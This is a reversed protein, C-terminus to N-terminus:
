LCPETIVAPINERIHEYIMSSISSIEDTAPLTMFIKEIYKKDQLIEFSKPFNLDYVWSVQLLKFDNLSHLLDKRRVISKNRLDELVGATITPVDNVGLIVPDNETFNKKTFYETSFNYIDLKDADRIMRAFMLERGTCDEPIAVINHKDIAYIIIDATKRCLDDLVGEDKIIKVALEAHNISKSDLFTGYQTFQEFRGLDHFLAITEAINVDTWSLGQSVAIEKINSCVRFTHKEKLDLCKQKEPDPSSFSRAYELFWKKLFLLTQYDVM